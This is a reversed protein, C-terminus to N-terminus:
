VSFRHDSAVEEQTIRKYENTEICFEFHIYKTTQQNTPTKNKDDRDFFDNPKFFRDPLLSSFVCAIGVGMSVGMAAKILTAGIALGCVILPMGCTLSIVALSASATILLIGATALQHTSSVATKNQSDMETDTNNANSLNDTKLENPETELELDDISFNQPIGFNSDTDTDDEVPSPHGAQHLLREYELYVDTDTNNANPSSDAESRKSEDTTSGWDDLSPNHPIISSHENEIIEHIVSDIAQSVQKRNENNIALLLRELQNNLETTEESLLAAKTTIGSSSRLLKKTTKKYIEPIPLQKIQDATIKINMLIPLVNSRLSQEFNRADQVQEHNETFLDMYGAGAIAHMITAAYRVKDYGTLATHNINCSKLEGDLREQDKRYYLDGETNPTDRNINEKSLDLQTQINSATKGMKLFDSEKIAYTLVNPDRFCDHVLRICENEWAIYTNNQIFKKTPNVDQITNKAQKAAEITKEYASSILNMSRNNLNNADTMTKQAVAKLKTLMM